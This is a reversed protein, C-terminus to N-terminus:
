TVKHKKELLALSFINTMASPDYRVEDFNPVTACQNAFRLGGNTSLELTENVTRINTELKPNCFLNATSGSDLLIWYKM